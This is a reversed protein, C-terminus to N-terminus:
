TSCPPSAAARTRGILAVFEGKAVSLHIDRLAPFNGKKTKFTQEVNQIDIYKADNNM